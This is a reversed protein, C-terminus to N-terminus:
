RTLVREVGAAIALLRRDAMAEGMLMLGVPLGTAPLPLSIACRDLMNAIGTNRLALRNARDFATPSGTVDAIKPAVIPTTPLVVADFPATAADTQAMLKRRAALLVERQGPPHTLAQEIRQRVGPDYKDASNALLGKHVEMAESAVIGGNTLLAPLHDFPALELDTLEVGARVLAALASEYTTAVTSDMDELVYNRIVGLRLGAPAVEELAPDGGSLVADAAACCAVTRGIPGVSDFTQSLPFAGDRSVRRQTPKFGTLGCFAAPIRCSGGTDTGLGLAAMGDAVSIAAGSSSGGPVRARDTPNGPTGFHPNLGLGSYAFETMNTAGLIVCGAAKLRAVAVADSRARSKLVVSGATTVANKIDFLAKVSVPVGLLPPLAGGVALRLDAQRAQALAADRDLRTFVKSGEGKPETTRELALEIIETVSRSGNRYGAQLEAITPLLTM